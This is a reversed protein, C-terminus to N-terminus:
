SSAEAAEPTDAPEPEFLDAVDAGLCRAVRVKTMPALNREGREALSLMSTSLGTLGAVERITLGHRMRWLRLRSPPERSSSM